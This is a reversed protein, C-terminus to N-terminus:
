RSARQAGHPRVQRIWRAGEREFGVHRFFEQAGAAEAVILRGCEMRAAIEDAEGLMARGIRKRRLERDVVIKDIQMAEATIEMGLVAVLEGVLKGLLGFAPVETTGTQQGLFRAVAEHDATEIPRIFLKQGRM